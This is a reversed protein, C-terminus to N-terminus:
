ILTPRFKRMRYSTKTSKMMRMMMLATMAPRKVRLRLLTVPFVVSSASPVYSNVYVIFYGSKFTHIVEKSDGCVGEVFMGNCTESTSM